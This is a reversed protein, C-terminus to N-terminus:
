TKLNQALFAITKGWADATEEKAYNAGSPNAFAHGVGPYVYIQNEIELSDLAAEFENVKAVPISTDNEGFIGLVPWNINELETANTVLTGYYIVTADLEENLSLQMSQGGGFCWGLSGVKGANEKERLYSVAAKMESVAKQPNSRVASAFQGAMASDTAVQGGYLDIALVVYGEKALIKAMQEINSNLGWWEHIMIIGPYDGKAIPKALFGKVEGELYSGTVSDLDQSFMDANNEQAPICNGYEDTESEPCGAMKDSFDANKGPICSNAM